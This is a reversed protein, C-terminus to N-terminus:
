GAAPLSRLTRGRMAKRAYLREDALRFLDAKSAGDSPHTAWGLTAPCGAVALTAEIRRASSAAEAANRVSAVVCFEDGGIRAVDDEPRALGLLSEALLRLADDGASHGHGDNVDKLRDMDCLLLAFPAGVDLRRDVSTEFFRNNGVGTLHDREAGLRLEALLARNRAAFWGVLVGTFLVAVFRAATTFSPSTSEGWHPNLQGAALVLLMSAVAGGAGVAPGGAIAVLATPIVFYAAVAIAPVHLVCLAAFVAGYGAAAVGALHIRGRASEGM